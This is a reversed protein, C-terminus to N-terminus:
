PFIGSSEWLSLNSNSAWMCTAWLQAVILLIQGFLTIQCHASCCRIEAPGWITPKKQQKYWSKILQTCLSSMYICDTDSGWSHWVFDTWSAKLFVVFCFWFCWSVTMTLPDKSYSWDVGQCSYSYGLYTSTRFYQVVFSVFDFNSM